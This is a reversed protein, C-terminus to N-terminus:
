PILVNSLQFHHARQPRRHTESRARGEEAAAAAPATAAVLAVLIHTTEIM